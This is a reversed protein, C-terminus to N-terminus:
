VNNIRSFQKNTSGDTSYCSCSCCIRATVSATIKVM